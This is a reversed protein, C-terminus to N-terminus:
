ASKRLAELVRIRGEHDGLQRRDYERAKRMETLMERLETVSSALAAISASLRWLAGAAALAVAAGSGIVAYPIELM